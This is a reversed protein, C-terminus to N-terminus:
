KCIVLLYLKLLIETIKATSDLTCTYYLPLVKTQDTRNTYLKVLQKVEKWYYKIQIVWNKGIILSFNDMELVVIISLLLILTIM